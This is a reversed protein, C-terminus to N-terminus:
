SYNILFHHNEVSFRSCLNKRSVHPMSGSKTSVNEIIYLEDGDLVINKQQQHRSKLIDNNFLQWQSVSMNFVFTCKLISNINFSLMSLGAYVYVITFVTYRNLVCRIHKCSYVRISVFSSSFCLKKGNWIMHAERCIYQIYLRNNANWPQILVASKKTNVNYM